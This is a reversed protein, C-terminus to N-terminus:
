DTPQMQSFGADGVLRGTVTVTYFHPERDRRTRLGDVAHDGGLWM